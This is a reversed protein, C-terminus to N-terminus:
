SVGRSRGRHGDRDLPAPKEAEEVERLYQPSHAPAPSDVRPLLEQDPIISIPYTGIRRAQAAIEDKDM